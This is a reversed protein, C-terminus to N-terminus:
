EAASRQSTAQSSADGKHAGRATLEEPAFDDVAIAASVAEAAARLSAAEEASITRQKVAQDIDRVKATRM